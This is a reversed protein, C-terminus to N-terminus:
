QIKSCLIAQAIQSSKQKRPNSRIRQRKHFVHDRGMQAHPTAQKWWSLWLRGGLQQKKQLEGKYTSALSFFQYNDRNMNKRETCTNQFSCASGGAGSSIKSLCWTARTPPATHAKSPSDAAPKDEAMAAVVVAALTSACSEGSNTM